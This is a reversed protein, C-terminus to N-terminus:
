RAAVVWRWIERWRPKKGYLLLGARFLRASVALAGATALLLIAASLAVDTWPTGSPDITVRFMMTTPATFPILSFIRAVTGQPAEILALLIFAPSTGILTWVAGMQQSERLNTGLAGFGLMLSGYLAYGLLFYILCAVFAGPALSVQVALAVAGVVSGLLILGAWVALQLLGAAGLGILKGLMLEGPTVSSLVMELVRNEKEEAMGLLLYQSSNFIATFLLFFFVYAVGSRKLAEAENEASPHGSTPELYVTRVELPDKARRVRDPDTGALVNELLWDKLRPPLPPQAATLLTPRRTTAVTVTGTELYDKPILVYAGVEGAALAARAAQETPFRRASFPPDTTLGGWADVVGLPLNRIARTSEEIAHKGVLSMGALIAAFVLPLVFTAVVFWVRRVTVSFERAAVIGAKRM